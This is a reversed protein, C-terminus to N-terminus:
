NSRPTEMVGINSRNLCTLVHERSLGEFVGRVEQFWIRPGQDVLSKQLFRIGGLRGRGVTLTWLLLSKVRTKDPRKLLVFLPACFFLLILRWPQSVLAARVLIRYSDESTLTGDFDFFAYSKM